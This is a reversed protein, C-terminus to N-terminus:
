VEFQTSKNEKELSQTTDDETQVCKNDTNDMEEVGVGRSIFTQNETQMQM